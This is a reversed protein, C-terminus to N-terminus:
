TNVERRAAWHAGDIGLVRATRGAACVAAEVGDVAVRREAAVLHRLPARAEAAAGDVPLLRHERSALTKVRVHRLPVLLHTRTYRRCHRAHSHARMGGNRVTVRGVTRVHACAGGCFWSFM